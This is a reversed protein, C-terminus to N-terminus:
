SVKEWNAQLFIDVGNEYFLADKHQLVFEATLATVPTENPDSKITYGRFEGDAKSPSQLVLTEGFVYSTPNPNVDGADDYRVTYTVPETVARLVIDKETGQAISEVKSEPDDFYAWKLFRYGFPLIPAYLVIEETAKTFSTPNRSDNRGNEILYVIKYARPVEVAYLTFSETVAASFDYPTKNLVDKTWIVVYGATPNANFVPASLTEGAKVTAKEPPAAEYPLGSTSFEVQYFVDEAPKKKDKCSFLGLLLVLLLLLVFVRKM